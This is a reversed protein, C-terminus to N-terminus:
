ETASRPFGCNFCEPGRGFGQSCQPCKFGLFRANLIFFYVAVCMAWSLTIAIFVLSNAFSNRGLILGLVFPAMAILYWYRGYTNKRELLKQYEDYDEL